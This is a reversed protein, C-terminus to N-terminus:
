PATYVLPSFSVNPQLVDRGALICYKRLPISEDYIPPDTASTDSAHNSFSASPALAFSSIENTKRRKRKEEVGNVNITGRSM